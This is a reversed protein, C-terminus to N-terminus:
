EWPLAVREFPATPLPATRLWMRRRGVEYAVTALTRYQELWPLELEGRVFVPDRVDSEDSLADVVDDLSVAAAPETLAHRVQRLRSESNALYEAMAASSLRSISTTFHNTHTVQGRDDPAAVGYGDPVLEFAAVCGHAAPARAAVTVCMSCSRATRDFVTAVDDLTVCEELLWRLLVHMPVGDLGGARLDPTFSVALALGDANLGTKALLGAETFTVWGRGDPPAAIWLLRGAAADPHFDWNQALLGGRPSSHEIGIVSCEARHRALSPLGNVAGRALIESRANLALLLEEPHGAGLAIGCIEDLSEPRVRALVEGVRRGVGHIEDRSLDMDLAFMREYLAVTAAIADPVAAGLGRGRDGPTAERSIHRCILM